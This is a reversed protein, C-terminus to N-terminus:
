MLALRRECSSMEYDDEPCWWALKRSAASESAALTALRALGTTACSTYEEKHECKQNIRVSLM